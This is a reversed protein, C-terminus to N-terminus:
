QSALDPYAPVERSHYHIVIPRTDELIIITHEEGHEVSDDMHIPKLCQPHM